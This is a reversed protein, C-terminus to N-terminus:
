MLKDRAYRSRPRRTECLEQAFCAFATFASSRSGSGVKGRHGHKRRGLRRFQGISRVIQAM